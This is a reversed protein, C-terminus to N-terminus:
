EVAVAVARAAVARAAAAKGAARAVSSGGIEMVAVAVAWAAAASAVGARTAVARAGGRREWSQSQTIKPFVPSNHTRAALVESFRPSIQRFRPCM